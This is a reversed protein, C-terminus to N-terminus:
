SSTTLKKLFFTQRVSTRGKKKVIKSVKAMNLYNKQAQVAILLAVPMALSM